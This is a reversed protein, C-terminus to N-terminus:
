SEFLESVEDDYFTLGTAALGLAYAALYVRGGRISGDLQAARYGREGGNTEALFYVNVAADAALRQDLALHSAMLRLGGLRIVDRLGRYAGPELGDVGSVILYPETLADFDAQIPAEAVALIAELEELRIPAPVFRRASGRRLIAAEITGEGTPLYGAASLSPRRAQERFTRVENSSALSSARQAERILPYDVEFASYPETKLGLPMIPPAAPPPAGGSGLPVVALAAERDTDLALLRNVRADVFASLAQAPLHHANAVALLNALITGSDWFCHRWARSQYKWANRWYTSALVLFAPAAECAAAEALAGRYDGSRLVTLNGSEVDFHYVGAPIGALDQCVLYLDIHYLAGTCAAARFPMRRGPFTLWKTIGNSLQLVTSILAADPVLGDMVSCAGAIARLAPQDSPLVEDPLTIQPARVYRKYPRPQNEFDLRHANSRVSQLSHKTLEHVRWGASTSDLSM